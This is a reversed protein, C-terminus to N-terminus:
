YEVTFDGATVTGVDWQKFEIAAVKSLYYCCTLYLLSILIGVCSVLLAQDRKRNLSPLGQENDDNIPQVCQYQLYIISENDWCELPAVNADKNNLMSKVSIESKCEKKGGCESEIYTEIADSRLAPSCKNVAEIKKPDNCYGM